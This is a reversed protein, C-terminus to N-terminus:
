YNFYQKRLKKAKIQWQPFAKDEHESLYIWVLYQFFDDQGHNIVRHYTNPPVYILRGPKVSYCQDGVEMEGEGRVVYMFEEAGPPSLHRRTSFGQHFTNLEFDFRNEGGLMQIESAKWFLDVLHLRDHLNYCEELKRELPATLTNNDKTVDGYAAVCNIKGVGSNTLSFPSEKPIWFATDPSVIWSLAVSHM